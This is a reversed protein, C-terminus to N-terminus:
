SKLECFIQFKGFVYQRFQADNLELFARAPRQSLVMTIGEANPEYFKEEM